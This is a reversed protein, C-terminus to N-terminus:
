TSIGGMPSSSAMRMREVLTAHQTNSSHTLPVHYENTPAQGKSDSYLFVSVQIRIGNKNKQHWPKSNPSFNTLGQKTKKPKSFDFLTSFFIHTLHSPYNVFTLFIQKLMSFWRSIWIEDQFCGLSLLIEDVWLDTLGSCSRNPHEKTEICQRSFSRGVWQRTILVLEAISWSATVSLILTFLLIGTRIETQCSGNCSAKHGNPLIIVRCILNISETQPVWRTLSRQAFGELMTDLIQYM